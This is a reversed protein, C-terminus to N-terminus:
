DALTHTIQAGTLHPVHFTQPALTDALLLACFALAAGAAIARLPDAPSPTHM